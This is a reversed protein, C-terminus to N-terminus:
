PLLFPRILRGKKHWKKLISVIFQVSRNGRYENINLKYAAKIQRFGLWHKPKDVFFAIANIVPDGGSKRLVYKLHWQGVIRSKIVDFCGM